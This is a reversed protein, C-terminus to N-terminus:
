KFGTGGFYRSRHHTDEAAPLQRTFTQSEDGVVNLFIFPMPPPGHVLALHRFDADKSVVALGNAAAYRWVIPDDAGILGADIVHQSGPYDGALLAVLRRSLNQDFLLSM